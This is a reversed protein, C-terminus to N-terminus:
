VYRESSCLQIDDDVIFLNVVRKNAYPRRSAFMSLCACMYACICISRCLSLDPNSALINGRREYCANRHALRQGVLIHMVNTSNSRFLCATIPRGSLFTTDIYFVSDQIIEVTFIYSLLLFFRAPQTSYLNFHVSGSYKKVSM